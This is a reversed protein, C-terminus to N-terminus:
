ESAFVPRSDCGCNGHRYLEESLDHEGANQTTCEDCATASIIGEWGTITPVADSQAKVTDDRTGLLESDALRGILFQGYEVAGARDKGNTISGLMISGLPALADKVSGAPSVDSLDPMDALAVPAGTTLEAYLGIYASALEQVSAKGARLLPAAKAAFADYSGAIDSEDLDYEDLLRAM